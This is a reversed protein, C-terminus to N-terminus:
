KANMCPSMVNIHISNTQISSQSFILFVNSSMFPHTRAEWSESKLTVTALLYKIFLHLSHSPHSKSNSTRHTTQNSSKDLAIKLDSKKHIREPETHYNSLQNTAEKHLCERICQSTLGINDTVWKKPLIILNM